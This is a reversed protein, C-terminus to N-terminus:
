SYISFSIHNVSINVEESAMDVIVKQKLEWVTKYKIVIKLFRLYKLSIKFLVM